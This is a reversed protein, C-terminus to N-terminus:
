THFHQQRLFLCISEHRNNVSIRYFSTHSLKRTKPANSFNRFAVTLKTIDTQRDTSEDTWKKANFLEAGDPLIKM